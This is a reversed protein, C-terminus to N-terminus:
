TRTIPCVTFGLTDRTYALVAELSAQVDSVSGTVIVTGSFRDVFGLEVGSSKISIDATIIATESPTITLIGIASRTYDVRPDLGLKKYIIADPGAIVHALTIQRGPGTEQIIRLKDEKNLLQQFDM